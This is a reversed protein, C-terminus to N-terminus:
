HMHEIYCAFGILENSGELDCIIGSGCENGCEFFYVFEGDAKIIIDRYDDKDLIWREEVFKEFKGKSSIDKMYKFIIESAEKTCYEEDGWNPSFKDQGPFIAKRIDEASKPKEKFSLIFSSSSSNSVFGTRTKM